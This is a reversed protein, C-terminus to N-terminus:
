DNSKKVSENDNLRTRNSKTTFQMEKLELIKLLEYTRKAAELWPSKVEAAM